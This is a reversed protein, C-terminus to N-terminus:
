VTKPNSVSVTKKTKFSKSTSYQIQYGSINKVEKINVTIAKKGASLKKISAASVKLKAKKDTKYSKGCSCTHLTYGEKEYTPKVTKVTYKHTHLPKVINFNVTTGFVRYDGLGIVSVRAKGVNINNTYTAKYDANDTLSKGGQSVKLAPTIARGTYTQDPIPAVVFTQYPIGNKQAYLMANSNAQCLITLKECNDFATDEITEVGSAILATELNSCDAFAKERIQTIGNGIVVTELIENGQFENEAIYEEKEEKTFYFKKLNDCDQFADYAVSYVGTLDISELSYCKFFAGASIRKTNGVNIYNLKDCYAFAQNMISNVSSPLVIKELETKYFCESGIADLGENLKISKLPTEKFAYGMVKITDPLEIREISSNSFTAILRRINVNKGFLVTKISKADYFTENLTDISVGDAFIITNLKNCGVFVDFGIESVNKSITLIELNINYAFASDAIKLVSEPVVFESEEKNQPYSILETKDKNYLVGDCDSYLPNNKSAMISKPYRYFYDDYHQKYRVALEEILDAPNIFNAGIVFGNEFIEGNQIPNFFLVSDPIVFVDTKGHPLANNGVYLLNENLEFDNIEIGRLAGDELFKLSSPLTLKENIECGCFAEESICELTEPLTVSNFKKNEFAVTSIETVPKSNIYSPIVLDEVDEMLRDIIIFEGYEFYRINNYVGYGIYKSKESCSFDIAANKFSDTYKTYVGDANKIRQLATCNEFAGAGIEYTYDSLIVEELASCNKFWYFGIKRIFTNKLNIKKLNKNGKFANWYGLDSLHTCNSFDIEEIDSNYFAESGVSILYSGEEFKLIPISAASFASREIRVISKPITISNINAGQFVCEEINRLESNAKFEFNDIQAYNFAYPKIEEVSASVIIENYKKLSFAYEWILEVSEPIIIKDKCPAFMLEKFDKSYIIDDKSAIYPNEESINVSLPKDPNGMFIYYYPNYHEVTNRRLKRSAYGGIDYDSFGSVSNYKFETLMTNKGIYISNINAYSFAMPNLYKLSEPLVIDKNTFNANGFAHNEIGILGEPFNMESISAYTFARSIYELTSPLTLRLNEANNFAKNGIYRIGESITIDNAIIGGGIGIVTNGAINNPVTVSDETGNYKTIEVYTKGFHEYVTRYEWDGDNSTIVDALASVPSVSLIMLISLIFSIIKKM